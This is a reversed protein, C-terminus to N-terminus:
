AATVLSAALCFSISHSQITCLHSISFPSQFIPCMSIRFQPKVIFTIRYLCVHFFESEEISVYKRARKVRRGGRRGQGKGLPRGGGEEEGGGRM